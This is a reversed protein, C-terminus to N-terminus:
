FRLMLHGLGQLHVRDQFLEMQKEDECGKGTLNDVKNNVNFTTSIWSTEDGFNRM